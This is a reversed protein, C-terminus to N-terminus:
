PAFSKAQVDSVMEPVCANIEIPITEVHANNATLVLRVVCARTNIPKTQDFIFNGISYYITSGKYQEITQLTHTHHCVLLNAGANVLLRAHHRQQASPVLQHETGWHLSVVIYANPQSLRLRKIRAVLSDLPEQSVCPKDTLYAFNELPLRLSALIYVPRPHTTLLLPQSADLMNEGAGFPTMGAQKINLHTDMLADRGQDISHNNALNLHTFGHNTLWSLWEPEGRFVFRKFVPRKIKTAPCELNGVVFRSQKFVQQLKPGVLNRLGLYEIRKRVGRDLLIDGTFVVSLTDAKQAWVTEACVSLTDSTQAQVGGAFSFTLYLVMLVSRCLSAVHLFFACGMAKFPLQPAVYFHQFVKKLM